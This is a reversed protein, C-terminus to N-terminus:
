GVRGGSEGKQLSPKCLNVFQPVHAWIVVERPQQPRTTRPRNEKTQRNAPHRGNDTIIYDRRVIQHRVKSQKGARSMRELAFPAAERVKHELADPLEDPNNEPLFPRKM